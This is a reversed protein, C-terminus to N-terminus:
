TCKLLRELGFFRCDIDDYNGHGSNVDSACGRSGLPVHLVAYLSSTPTDICLRSTKANGSEINDFLM